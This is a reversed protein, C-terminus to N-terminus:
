GILRHLEALRYPKSLMDDFKFESNVMLDGTVLVKKIGSPLQAAVRDGTTSKLRYDIFIIDPESKKCYEIAEDEDNFTVVTFDSNEFYIEFLDTLDEEDDLYVIHRM